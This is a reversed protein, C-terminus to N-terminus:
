VGFQTLHHHIHKYMLNSWEKQTLNGFSLSQKGDFHKEGLVQTRQLYDILRKKEEEFNREGKIVFAPATGSNKEYPTTADTLRKKVFTKLIFKVLFNPAQHKNEFIMEYTVSCHALMQAVNMKGWQAATNENLRNIRGILVDTVNKEFINLAEM